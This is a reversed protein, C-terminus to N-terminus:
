LQHWLPPWLRHAAQSYLQQHRRLLNLSPLEEGRQPTTVQTQPISGLAALQNVSAMGFLSHNASCHHRGVWSTARISLGIALDGGPVVADAFQQAPSVNFARMASSSAFHPPGGFVGARAPLSYSADGACPTPGAYGSRRSAQKSLTTGAAGHEAFGSLFERRLATM